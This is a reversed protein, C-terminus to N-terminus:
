PLKRVDRGRFFDLQDDFDGGLGTVVQSQRARSNRNATQIRMGAFAALKPVPFSFWRRRGDQGRLVASQVDHSKQAAFPKGSRRLPSGIRDHRHIVVLSQRRQFHDREFLPTFQVSPRGNM